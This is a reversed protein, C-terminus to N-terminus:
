PLRWTAGVLAFRPLWVSTTRDFLPHKVDGGLFQVDSCCPNAHNTANVVEGFLELSGRPVPHVWVVRSDFSFYAPWTEANLYSQVFAMPDTSAVLLRNRRWGTHWDASTSVTWARQQWMLGLAVAHRQDWSVPVWRGHIVEDAESWSYNAWGSWHEASKWRLSLEAGYTSARAPRLRIRDVELEPLLALPDLLNEFRPRPSSVQKDFAELHLQLRSAFRHELSLVGENAFEARHFTPDGDQVDLEDPRQTESLRGWSARLVTAPDYQYQLSLRPSVQNGRFATAYREGDWRVGADLMLKPSLSWLASSYAGYAQGGRDLETFRAFGPGRGFAAALRPDFVATGTYGYRAGYDSFEFGSSLRWRENLATAVDLRAVTTDFHRLDDVTGQASGLRDLSGVRHTHRETRSLTVRVQSADSPALKWGLWGTIDRTEVRAAETSSLGAVASEGQFHPGLEAKLNDDLMLYGASVSSHEGTDYEVRGLADMFQPEVQNRDLLDSVLDVVGVRVAGLWQLPGSQLRGQTRAGSYLLSQSFALENGGDWKRPQMDLVGSLRNGYQAPFVGSFFDMTSVSDPDITGLLAQVDKYHYPEFLPVGDYYTTVEDERGGRVHPRASIASTATGPLYRTVRMADELLGPLNQLEKGSIETSPRSSPTSAEVAYRSAYVNVEEIQSVAASRPSEASASDHAAAPPAAPQPPTAMRIVAFLGPRVQNLGLGYPALVRRAIEEPSGSGPDTSVVFGPEVLASSFILGLGNGRLEDLAQALPQGRVVARAAGTWLLVAAIFLVEGSHRARM